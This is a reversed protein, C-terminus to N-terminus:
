RRDRDQARRVVAVYELVAPALRADRVPGGQRVIELVAVRDSTELGSAGPWYRRALWRMTPGFFLIGFVAQFIAAFWSGTTGFSFVGMFLGFPVGMWLTAQWGSAYYADRRKGSLKVSM